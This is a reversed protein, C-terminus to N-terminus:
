DRWYIKKKLSKRLQRIHMVGEGTSQEWRITNDRQWTEKQQCWSTQSAFVCLCVCTCVCVCKWICVLVFVELLLWCLLAGQSPCICVADGLFPLVVGQHVSVCSCVSVGLTWCEALCVQVGAKVQLLSYNSGAGGACVCGKPLPKGVSITISLSFSQELQFHLLQLLYLLLLALFLNRTTNQEPIKENQCVLIGKSNICKKRGLIEFSLAYILWLDLVRRPSCPPSLTHTLPVPVSIQCYGLEGGEEGWALVNIRVLRLFNSHMFAFLM